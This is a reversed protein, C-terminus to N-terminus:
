NVTVTVSAVPNLWRHKSSDLDSAGGSADMDGISGRHIHVYGEATSSVGTGGSGLDSGPDAPIGAAGPAGAGSVFKEDNAETGADYANLMYTYTGATTPITMSNLAVFGDNTPLMMSVVSLETNASMTTLSTTTSSGPALLGSAPNQVIDASVAELDTVLGSIDGGEAMEQLNTSAASGPTFLATSDPHAAVLIPTFYIGKTLNTVTINIDAAALHSVMGSALLLSALEKKM